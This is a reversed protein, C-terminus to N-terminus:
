TGQREYRPDSAGTRQCADVERMTFVHRSWNGVGLSACINRLLCMHLVCSRRRFRTVRSPKCMTSLVACTLRCAHHHSRTTRSTKHRLWVVHQVTHSLDSPVFMHSSAPHSVACSTNQTCMEVGKESASTCKPARECGDRKCLHHM